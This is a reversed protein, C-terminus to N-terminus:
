ADSVPTAEPISPEGTKKQSKKKGRGVLFLILWIIGGIVPVWPLIFAILTVIGALAYAINGFFDGFADGLPRWVSRSVPTVKASYRINIDSMSVRQRLNALSAEYSDIEGQVRALEREVGLLEELNGDRTTLLKQLRERLTKQATLRADTDIIQATLDVSSKSADKVSASSAELTSPLGDLFPQVWDPAAKLNLFGNAYSTGLGNVVSSTVLCKKPGADNCLKAHSELVDKLKDTPVEISRSYTYALFLGARQPLDKLNDSVDKRDSVKAKSLDMVPTPVPEPAPQLKELNQVDSYTENHNGGNGCGALLLGTMVVPLFISRM